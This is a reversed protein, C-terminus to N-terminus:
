NTRPTKTPVPEGGSPAPGEGHLRGTQAAAERPQVRGDEALRLRAAQGGQSGGGGSGRGGASVALVASCHTWM